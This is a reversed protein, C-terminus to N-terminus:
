QLIVRFIQHSQQDIFRQGKSSTGLGFFDGKEIFFPNKLKFTFWGEKGKMEKKKEKIEEEFKYKGTILLQFEGNQKSFSATYARWKKEFFGPYLYITVSEILGFFPAGSNM